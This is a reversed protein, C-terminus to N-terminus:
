RADSDGDLVAGLPVAEYPDGARLISHTLLTGHSLHVTKNNPYGMFRDVDVKDQENSGHTAAAAPGPTNTTQAM